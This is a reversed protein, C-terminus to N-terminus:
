DFEDFDSATSEKLDPTIVFGSAPGHVKSMGVVGFQSNEV